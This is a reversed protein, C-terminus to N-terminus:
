EFWSSAKQRGSGFGIGNFDIGKSNGRLGTNVATFETAVQIAEKSYKVWHDQNGNCNSEEELEPSLQLMAGLIDLHHHFSYDTVVLGEFWAGSNPDPCQDMMDGHALHATLSDGEITSMSVEDEGGPDHCYIIPDGDKVKSKKIGLDLKLGKLRAVNGEGHVVVIGGNDYGEMTFTREVGDTLEIYTVGSLPFDLYWGIDKKAIHPNLLYQRGDTGLQAIAKLTGEPYGLIEDPTEPFTGEWDYNEEIVNPNEPYSLAYDVSDSTGGISANEDNNFAVSSSIAATGTNPKVTLDLNHDRGDIYMDSITNNLDGNATWAGRVVPPVWGAVSTPQSFVAITKTLEGYPGYTINVEVMSITDGVTLASDIIRYELDIGAITREEPDYLRYGLSDALRTLLMNVMSNGINRAEVEEYYSFANQVGSNASQFMSTSVVAMTMISGLIIILLGKGM